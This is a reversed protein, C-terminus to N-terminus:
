PRCWGLRAAGNVIASCSSQPQCQAAQTGCWFPQDATDYFLIAGGDVGNCGCAQGSGNEFVCCLANGADHGADVTEGADDVPPIPASVPEAGGCGAVIAAVLLLGLKM